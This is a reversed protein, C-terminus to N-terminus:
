VIQRVRHLLIVNPLSYSVPYGIQSISMCSVQLKSWCVESDQDNTAELSSKPRFLQEVIKPQINVAAM